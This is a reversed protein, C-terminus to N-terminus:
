RGFFQNIAKCVKLVDENEMEPFIPLSIVDKSFRDTNPLSIDYSIIPQKHIPIPYHIETGIGKKLLFNKLKDRKKTRIVYLHYVHKRKKFEIPKIVKDTLEENYIKAIERRREIWEDLHKLQEIGIAALIESMRFNLSLISSIYKGEKLRFDRGHDRLMKLKIDFDENNTLAMGGDGGVTMNKSPYFSFCSIEGFSGAKKGRYTAGHAQCADEIILFGYREKLEMLRDMDCMQGYLHVPIVVKIDNEMLKRELDDMDMTYSNDVDIFVPNAGLMIIPSTSAIFSHSVCAVNDGPGIDLAKLALFIASTGNSVSTGYKCGCYSSFRNEFEKSVPGKILRYTRLVEIVRKEMEETVVPKALPIM